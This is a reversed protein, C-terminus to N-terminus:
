EINEGKLVANIRDLAADAIRAIPGEELGNCMDANTDKESIAILAKKAIIIAQEAKNSELKKEVEKRINDADVLATEYAALEARLERVLADMRGSEKAYEEAHAKAAALEARLKAIEDKDTWALPTAM